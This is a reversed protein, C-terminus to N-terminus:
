KALPEAAALFRAVVAPLAERAGVPQLGQTDLPALGAAMAIDSRGYLGWAVFLGRQWDLWAKPQILGLLGATERTAEAEISVPTNGEAVLVVRARVAPSLTAIESGELPAFLLVIGHGAPHDVRRFMLGCAELESVFSGRGLPRLRSQEDAPYCLEIM